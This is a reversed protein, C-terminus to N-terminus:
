AVGREFLEFCPPQEIHAAAKGVRADLAFVLRRPRGAPCAAHRGRVAAGSEGALVHPDIEVPARRALGAARGVRGEGADAEVIEGHEPASLNNGLEGLGIGEGGGGDAPVHEEDPRM